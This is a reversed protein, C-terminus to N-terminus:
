QWNGPDDCKKNHIRGAPLAAEYARSVCVNIITNWIRKDWPRTLESPIKYENKDLCAKTSSTVIKECERSNINFCQQYFTGPQCFASPLTSTMAKIWDSKDIKAAHAPLSLAVLFLAITLLSRKLLDIKLLIIKLLYVTNTIKM